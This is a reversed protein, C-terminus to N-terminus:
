IIGVETIEGMRWPMKEKIWELYEDFLGEKKAIDFELKISKEHRKKRTELEYHIIDGYEHVALIDWFKSPVYDRCVFILSPHKESKRGIGFACGYNRIWKLIPNVGIEEKPFQKLDVLAYDFKLDYKEFHILEKKALAQDYLERLRETAWKADESTLIFYKGLWVM